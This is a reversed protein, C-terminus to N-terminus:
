PKDTFRIIETNVNSLCLFLAFRDIRAPDNPIAAAKARLSELEQKAKPIALHLATLRDKAKQQEPTLDTLIKKQNTTIAAAEDEYARLNAEKNAIVQRAHAEVAPLDLITSPILALDREADALADIWAGKSEVLPRLALQAGSPLDMRHIREQFDPHLEVNTSISLFTRPLEVPTKIALVRFRGPIEVAFSNTLATKFHAAANVTIEVPSINTATFRILNRDPQAFLAASVPASQLNPQISATLDKTFVENARLERLLEEIPAIPAARGV